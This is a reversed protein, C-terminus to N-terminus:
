NKHKSSTQFINFFFFGLCLTFPILWIRFTSAL